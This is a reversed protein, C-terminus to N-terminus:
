YKSDNFTNTNARLENSKPLGGFLIIQIIEDANNCVHYNGKWESQFKVEDPTLKRQSATKNGDKLEILYNVGNYGVVLDPFGNGLASTIAVSVNPISRLKKVVENQNADIKKARM